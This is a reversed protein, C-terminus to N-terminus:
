EKLVAGGVGAAGWFAYRGLKALERAQPTSGETGTALLTEAMAIVDAFCRTVFGRQALKRLAPARVSVPRRAYAQASVVGGGRATRPHALENRWAHLEAVTRYPRASRVVQVGLRTAAFRTKGLTGEFPPTKFFRRERAWVDPYLVEILHNLFGEYSTYALLVAGMLLWPGRLHDLEAADRLGNAASWIARFTFSESSWTVQAMSTM